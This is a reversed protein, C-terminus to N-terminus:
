RSAPAPPPPPALPPALRPVMSTLWTGGNQKYAEVGRAGGLLAGVRASAEQQMETLQQMLAERSAVPQAPARRRQEYEKQLAFLEDTTTPPLELRAVLQAARRYNSDTAREYFAARDPPLAAKIRETLQKQAESRERMIADSPLSPGSLYSQYQEDFPKRLSFIMRFEEETPNFALLETRMSNATTNNRLDYEFLEEPTLLARVAAQQEEDLARRKEQQAQTVIGVTYLENRKEDYTRILDRVAQAKDPPLMGFRQQQRALTLPDNPEADAGLVERVLRQQELSLQRTALATAPDDPPNKWFPRDEMRPDLAKRRAAFQEAIQAMVIARIVERPFGDARLREVLIPLEAAALTSWATPDIAPAGHAAPTTAAVAREAQATAPESQVGQLLLFALAASAALSLALLVSLFTKM